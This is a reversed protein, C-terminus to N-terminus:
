RVLESLTKLAYEVEADDIDRHTVIRGKREGMVAFRVGQEAAEAAIRKIEGHHIMVINTEVEAPECLGYVSLEDALYRARAHDDELDALNNEVAFRGAAALIGVQRMGGGMRKRIRRAQSEQESSCLLLSGVPAGLGKSLCVSLTDFPAAIEKASLGTAVMANWIRAGDCHLTIGHDHALEGLRTLEPQIQVAGGALNHTNEVAILATPTAFTGTPNIMDAVTDAAIRGGAGMWTRSSVGGLAALAGVEFNLVHADVDALIEEGPRANLQLAIQNAMTGSPAFVASPFGFMDAVYQELANVTPDDGFVDDGVEAEAMAQRMATSPRTVTDSRFDVHM